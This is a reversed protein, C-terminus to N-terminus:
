PKAAQWVGGMGQGNVQGSVSDGKYFYLPHGNYTVQTAGTDPRILTSITGSIPYEGVLNATSTVTYPPWNTACSGTCRSVGVTDPAYTYLTMGNYGILYTGVIPDASSGLTLNDGPIQETTTSTSGPTQTGTQTESSNARRSSNTKYYSSGWWVLGAVVLAAIVVLITTTTQKM